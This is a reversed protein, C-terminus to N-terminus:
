GKYIQRLTDIDMCVIKGVRKNKVFLMWQGEGANSRAQSIWDGLHMSEVAKCEIAFNFRSKAEGRLIVDCGSLGSERSHILCDDDQQDYVFGLMNAIFACVEKQWSLGKNKASRPKIPSLKQVKARLKAGLAETPLNDLLWEKEAKSIELWM